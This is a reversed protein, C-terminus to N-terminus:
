KAVAVKAPRLVTDKFLFGKQIVEVIDGSQHGESSIHAVAEHYEPNFQVVETMEKVDHDNLFKYLSKAILEFGALWADLEATREKKQSEAIARDVDDIIPLLSRIMEMEIMDTWRSREREIRKKFNDFDATVRLLQGQVRQLEEQCAVLAAEHEAHEITSSEAEDFGNGAASLDTEHQCENKQNMNKKKADSPTM